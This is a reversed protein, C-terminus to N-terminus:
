HGEPSYVDAADHGSIRLGIATRKSSQHGTPRRELEHCTDRNKDPRGSGDHSKDRNVVPQWVIEHWDNKKLMAVASKDDNKKSKRSPQEDVSTCVLM